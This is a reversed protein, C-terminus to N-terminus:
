NKYDKLYVITTMNRKKGRLMRRFHDMCYKNNFEEKLCDKASRWTKGTVTCIVPHGNVFVGKHAKSMKQRTAQICIRGKSKLGIKKRTEDSVFKGKQYASIRRKTEESRKQGKCAISVKKRTEETRIYGKCGGGGATCNLGENFTNYLQIYHKELEDLLYDNFDGEVIIEFKHNDFGYKKLSNILKPQNECKLNRYRSLRSKINVSQGIYVKGSPSTIRYIGRIKSM